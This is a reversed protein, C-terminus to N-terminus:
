NTTDDRDYFLYTFEEKTGEQVSSAVDCYREVGNTFWILTAAYDIAKLSRSAGIALYGRHNLDFYEKFDDDDDNIFVYEQRPGDGSEDAKQIRGFSVEPVDPHELRFRRYDEPSKWLPQKGTRSFYEQFYREIEKDRRDESLRHNDQYVWKFLAMIDNDDSKDFYWGDIIPSSTEGPYYFGKVGLIELIMKHESLGSGEEKRAPCSDWSRADKCPTGGPNEQSCKKCCLYRATLRLLYHQLFSSRYLIQPHSYVRMYLHNRAELAGDIVSVSRKDFALGYARALKASSAEIAAGLSPKPLGDGVANPASVMVGTIKGSWNHLSIRCNSHATLVYPRVVDRLAYAIGDTVVIRVGDEGEDEAYNKNSHGLLKDKDGRNSFKVAFCGNLRQVVGYRSPADGDKAGLKTGAEIVGNFTLDSVEWEILRTEEVVRLSGLLRECDVSWNNLGSNKTDRLTYDLGDVDIASSNLLSILCNDFSHEELSHVEVSTGRYSCGIIMRAMLSLEADSVPACSSQGEGAEILSDFVHEIGEKFYRRVMLASMKEHPNPEKVECLYGYDSEFSADGKYERLLEEDLTPFDKSRSKIAYYKECTHSFPAHGCDHLLCALIFLLRKRKLSSKWNCDVSKGDREHLCDSNEALSDFAICGLHFTGLSHIFRDHRAAPFLTRMSTQEVSRLRQFLETDIVEDVIATPIRIYGHVSDRFVKSEIQRSASM